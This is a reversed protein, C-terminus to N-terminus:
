VALMLGIYMFAFIIWLVGGGEIGGGFFYLAPDVGNHVHSTGVYLNDIHDQEYYSDTLIRYWHDMWSDDRPVLMYSLGKSAAVFLVFGLIIGALIKITQKVKGNM